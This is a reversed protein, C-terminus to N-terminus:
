PSSPNELCLLSFTSLRLPETYCIHGSLYLSALKGNFALCSATACGGELGLASALAASQTGWPHPRRTVTAEARQQPQRSPVPCPLSPLYPPGERIAMSDSPLGPGAQGKLQVRPLPLHHNDHSRLQSTPATPAQLRQGSLPESLPRTCSDPM